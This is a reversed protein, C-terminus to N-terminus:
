LFYGICLRSVFLELGLGFDKPVWVLGSVKSVLVGFFPRSVSGLGLRSVGDSFVVKNKSIQSSFKKRRVECGGFLAALKVQTTQFGL